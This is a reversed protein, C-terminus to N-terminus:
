QTKAFAEALSRGFAGLQLGSGKSGSDQNPQSRLIQGFNLDVQLTVQKGLEEQLRKQWIKMQGAPLPKSRTLVAKIELADETISTLHIEPPPEGALSLVRRCREELEIRREQEVSIGRLPVKSAWEMRKGLPAIVPRISRAM